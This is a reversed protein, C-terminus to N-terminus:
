GSSGYAGRWTLTETSTSFIPTDALNATFDVTIESGVTTISNQTWTSSSDQSVGSSSKATLSYPWLEDALSGSKGITYVLADGIMGSSFVVGFWNDSWATYHIVVNVTEADCDIDVTVQFDGSIGTASQSPCAIATWGLFLSIFAVNMVSSMIPM